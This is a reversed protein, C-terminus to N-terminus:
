VYAHGKELANYLINETDRQYRPDKTNISDVIILGGLDRLRMRRVIEEAAKMNTKLTTNEIDVGHTARVSSVDISVLTETYDIVVM